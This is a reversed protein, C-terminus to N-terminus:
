KYSSPPPAIHFKGEVLGNLIGNFQPQKFILKAYSSGSKGAAAAIKNISGDKAIKEPVTYADIKENLYELEENSHGIVFKELALARKTFDSKDYEQGSTKAVMYDLIQNFDAYLQGSPLLIEKTYPLKEGIAVRDAESIAKIEDVLAKVKPGFTPLDNPLTPNKQIEQSLAAYHQFFTQVSPPLDSYYNASGSIWENVAEVYAKLTPELQTKYKPCANLIAQVAAEPTMAGSNIKSEIAQGKTFVCNQAATSVKNLSAIFARSNPGQSAIIRVMKAIKKAGMLPQAADFIEKAESNLAVKSNQIAIPAAFCCSIIAFFYVISLHM